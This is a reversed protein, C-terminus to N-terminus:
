AARRGAVWEAVWILARAVGLLGLAVGSTAMSVLARLIAAAVCVRSDGTVTM